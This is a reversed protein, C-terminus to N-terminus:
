MVSVRLLFHPARSPCFIYNIWPSTGYPPCYSTPHFSPSSWRPIRLAFSVRLFWPFCRHTDEWTKLFHWQTRNAQCSWYIGRSRLCLFRTGVSTFDEPASSWTIVDHSSQCRSLLTSFGLFFPAHSQKVRQKYFCAASGTQYVTSDKRSELHFIGSQTIMWSSFSWNGLHPCAFTWKYGPYVLLVWKSDSM